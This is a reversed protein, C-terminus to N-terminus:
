GNFNALLEKLEDIKEVIDKAIHADEEHYINGGSTFQEDEGNWGGSIEEYEERLKDLYDKEDNQLTEM